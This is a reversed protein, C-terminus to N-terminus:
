RALLASVEQQHSASSQSQKRLTELESEQSRIVDRLSAVLMQAEANEGLQRVRLGLGKMLAFRPDMGSASDVSDPDLSLARQIPDALVILM